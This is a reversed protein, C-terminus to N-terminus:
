QYDTLPLWDRSNAPPLFIEDARDALRESRSEGVGMLRVNGHGDSMYDDADRQPREVTTSQLTM